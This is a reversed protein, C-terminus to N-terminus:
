QTSMMKVFEEFNIQGDGDLDAERIIEKAEDDSLNEGLSNMVQKLEAASILGNGDKDFVKFTEKIDDAKDVDGDDYKINKTMMALFNPSNLQAM